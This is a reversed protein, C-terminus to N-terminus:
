TVIISGMVQASEDFEAEYQQEIYNEEYEEQYEVDGGEDEMKENKTRGGL